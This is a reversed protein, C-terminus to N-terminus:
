AYFARDLVRIARADEGGFGLRENPIEKPVGGGGGGSKISSNSNDGPSRSGVRSGVRSGGRSGGRSTISGGNPGDVIDDVMTAMAAGNILTGISPISNSGSPGPDDRVPSVEYRHDLPRAM